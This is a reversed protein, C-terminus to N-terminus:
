HASNESEQRETQTFKAFDKGPCWTNAPVLILPLIKLKGQFNWPSSAYSGSFNTEGLTRTTRLAGVRRHSKRCQLRQTGGPHLRPSLSGQHACRAVSSIKRSPTTQNVLKGLRNHLLLNRVGEWLAQSLLVISRSLGSALRWPQTGTDWWAPTAGSTALYLASISSKAPAAGEWTCRMM